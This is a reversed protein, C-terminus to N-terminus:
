VPYILSLLPMQNFSLPIQEIYTETSTCGLNRILDWLANMSHEEDLPVVTFTSLSTAYKMKLRLEVMGKDFGCVRYLEHFECHLM